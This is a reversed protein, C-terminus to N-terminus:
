AVLVERLLSWRVNSGSLLLGATGGAGDDALLGALGAAASPELVVRLATVLTRLAALIADDDVVLVRTEAERLVALNHVGPGPATLGDAITRVAPVVVAEGAALSRAIGDAGSPQVGVVEVPSGTARAALVAGAILGGGSCPVYLRDLDPVDELLELTATAAGAIVYPDDFPHVLTLGERRRLEAAREFAIASSTVGEKVVRAGLAAVADLKEPVANEPMVVTLRAGHERAAYAAGLAANGASITVLGAGREADTLTRIRNLAGRVKFSGTRQLSEAKAVVRCGAAADLAPAALVPTRTVAGGLAGAAERVMDVTPTSM